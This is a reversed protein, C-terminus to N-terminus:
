LTFCCTSWLPRQSVWQFVSGGSVGKCHIKMPNPKNMSDLISHGPCMRSKGSPTLLLSECFQTVIEKQQCPNDPTVWGWYLFLFKQQCRFNLPTPNQISWTMQTSEKRTPVGANVCSVQCLQWYVQCEVVTITLVVSQIQNEIICLGMATLSVNNKEYVCFTLSKSSTKLWFKLTNLEVNKTKLRDLFFSRKVTTELAGQEWAKSYWLGNSGGSSQKWHM